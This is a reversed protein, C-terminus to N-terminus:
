SRDYQNGRESDSGAPGVLYGTQDDVLSHNIFDSLSMFPGRLRVQKVIEQALTAIQTDTLRAFGTWISGYPGVPATSSPFPTGTSSDSGGGGAYTVALNKNASLFAQWAAVSTSNVNFSGDVLSYAGLKSFGDIQDTSGAIVPYGLDSIAQAATKGPPLYPHLVPNANATPYSNFFDTLTLPLSGTQNYGPSFSFAPALGSLYYRDFLMDNLYWSNDAVNDGNESPATTSPTNSKFLPGFPLSGSIGALSPNSFSNGIARFPESEWYSINASSFAALSLLPSDPINLMPLTQTGGSVTYDTGWNAAGSSSSAMPSGTSTVPLLSTVSTTPAGSVTNASFLADFPVTRYRPGPSDQLATPNMRVFMEPQSDNDGTNGLPKVLNSFQAFYYKTMSGNQAVVPIGTWSVNVTNAASDEPIKVETEDSALRAEQLTRSQIYDENKGNILETITQSSLPAVLAPLSLAISVNAQNATSSYIIPALTAPSAATKASSTLAPVYGSVNKATVAPYGGPNPMLPYNLLYLGSTGNISYGQQCPVTYDATGTVSNTKTIVSGISNPGTSASTFSATGTPSFAWIAGPPMVLNPPLTYTVVASGNGPTTVGTGAANLALYDGSINVGGSKTISTTVATAGITLVTGAPYYTATSTRPTAAPASPDNQTVSMQLVGPLPDAQQIMYNAMAQSGTGAAGLNLPRNYPNWIFHVTDVGLFIQNAQFATKVGATNTITITTPSLILSYFWRTGLYVPAYAGQVPKWYYHAANEAEPPGPTATTSAEYLENELQNYITSYGGPNSSVNPYYARSALQLPNGTLYKYLNYNDRMAHWNPGRMFYGSGNVGSPTIGPQRFLYRETFGLAGNNVTAIQGSSALPDSAGGGVFEGTTKNFNPPGTPNSTSSFQSNGDMEFALSLDRRLGGRQVDALVGRSGVTIDPHAQALWGPWSPSPVQSSALITQLDAPDRLLPISTSLFSDNDTTLPYTAAFPLSGGLGNLLGFDPGPISSLRIDQAQGAALTQTQGDPTQNWSLDAKVGEDEVSFACYRSGGPVTDIPVKPVQMYPATSVASNTPPDLAIYNPVTTSGNNNGSAPGVANAVDTVTAPISFNGAQNTSSVLWGVFDSAKSSPNTPQYQPYNPNMQPRTDPAIPKSDSSWVGTWAAQGPAPISKTGDPYNLATGDFLSAPATVRQDPGAAGQLEGVAVQLGFLASQKAYNANRESSVSHLTVTLFIGLWLILLMLLVVLFLSSILTFARASRGQRWAASPHKM